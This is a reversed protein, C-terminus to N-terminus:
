NDKHSIREGPSSIEFIDKSSNLINILNQHATEDILANDISEIFIEKKHKITMSVIISIRLYDLIQHLLNKVDGRYKTAIKKRDKDSMHGGHAYSSRISYADKIATKVQIPNFSLIGLVKSIRIALRYQLEQHESVPKFFLAELGMIAHAIQKELIGHELLSESYHSNAISIFSNSDEKFFNDKAASSISNWFKRLREIDENRVIYNYSARNQNGSIVSGSGIGKSLDLIPYELDISVSRVSGVRFLRLLTVTKEVFETMETSNREGSISIELFATPSTRNSWSKMHLLQIDEEFDEKSSKRIRIGPSIEFDDSHLIIGVLAVNAHWNNGRFLIDDLLKRENNEIDYESLIGKEFYASLIRHIFQKLFIEERGPNITATKLFVLTQNYSETKELKASLEPPTYFNFREVETGGKSFHPGNDDYRFDRVKLRLVKQIDPKIKENIKETKIINLTTEILQSLFEKVKLTDSDSLKM